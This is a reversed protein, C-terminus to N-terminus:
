SRVRTLGSWLSLTCRTRGSWGSGFNEFLNRITQRRPNQLLFPKASLMRDSELEHILKEMDDQGVDRFSKGFEQSLRQLIGLYKMCRGPGIKKKARGRLTKGLACDRLFSMIQRGNEPILDSRSEHKALAQDYKEKRHHIDIKGEEHIVVSNQNAM